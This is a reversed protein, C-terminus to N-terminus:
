YGSFVGNSSSGCNVRLRLVLLQVIDLNCEGDLGLRKAGGTRELESLGDESLVLRREKDEVGIDGAFVGKRLEGLEVLLVAILTRNNDCLDLLRGLVTDNDVLGAV